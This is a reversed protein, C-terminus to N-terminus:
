LQIMPFLILNMLSYTDKMILQTYLEEHPFYFLFFFRFACIDMSFKHVEFPRHISNTLLMCLVYCVSGLIYLRHTGQQRFQVFRYQNAYSSIHTNIPNLQINSRKCTIRLRNVISKLSPPLYIGYLYYFNPYYLFTM